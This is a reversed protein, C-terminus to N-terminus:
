EPFLASGHVAHGAAAAVLEARRSRAAGTGARTRVSDTRHRALRAGGPWAGAPDSDLIRRYYADLPRAREDPSLLGLFDESLDPYFRPLADLFAGELEARTGLFTARLVISSVREPHAEAYALALTAGWSGGVIMWREFGFQERIM